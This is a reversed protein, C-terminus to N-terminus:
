PQWADRCLEYEVDGHENGPLPDPWDLHLTRAHRLGTKELVRRSRVNVAMTTAVVRDVGFETFARRVLARAGETANGQGWASRRLRYGLAATTADGAPADRWDDIPSSGPVVPRLGFWGALEGGRDRAAWYGLGPHRAHCTMLRPLVVAAIETRSKVPGLFRMVEPDGDLAALEDADGVTFRRLVLRGTEFAAEMGPITGRRKGPRL